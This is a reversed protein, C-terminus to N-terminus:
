PFKKINNNDKLSKFIRSICTNEGNELDSFLDINTFLCSHSELFDTLLSIQKETYFSSICVWLKKVEINGTLDDLLDNLEGHIPLKDTGLGKTNLLIFSSGKIKEQIRLSEASMQSKSM